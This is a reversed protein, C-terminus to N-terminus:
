DSTIRWLVLHEGVRSFSKTLIPRISLTERGNDVYTKDNVSDYLEGTAQDISFAQIALSAADLSEPRIFKGDGMDFRLDIIQAELTAAEEFSIPDFGELGIAVGYEDLEVSAQDLETATGKTGLYTASTMQETLLASIEGQYRGLTMYYATFNEDPVYGTEYIQTLADDRTIENGTKYIFGSMFVTYLIPTVVFIALLIIGPLLFKLPVMGKSSYVVFSAILVIALVGGILNEGALFAVYMMYGLGSAFLSMAIIKAIMPWLRVPKLGQKNMSM